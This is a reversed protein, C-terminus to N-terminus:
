LKGKNRRRRALRAEIYDTLYLMAHYARDDLSEQDLVPVARKRAVKLIYDQIKRITEFNKVYQRSGRDAAFAQRDSFRHLHEVESRVAVLLMIANVGEFESPDVIGPVIHVGNIILHHNEKQARHILASMGVKVRMCQEEFAVLAPDAGEAAPPVPAQWATYSSRYISPMLTESLMARMIERIIDTSIVHAIGLRHALEVALSSKGAGTAGGILIVLPRDLSRFKRWALYRRAADAGAFRKVFHFAMTRLRDRSIASVEMAILRNQLHQSITYALNHDIGTAAISQTLRGKSFPFAGSPGEVSIQSLDERSREYNASSDRGFKKELIHTVMKKIESKPITRRRSIERQVEDAIEYASELNLGVSLLRKTLIGKSYPFRQHGDTVYVIQEKKMNGHLRRFLLGNKSRLLIAFHKGRHRMATM